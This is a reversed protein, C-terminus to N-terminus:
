LGIQYTQLNKKWFMKRCLGNRKDIADTVFSLNLLIKVLAGRGDTQGGVDLPRGDGPLPGEFGSSKDKSVLYRVKVNELPYRNWLQFWPVRVSLSLETCDVDEYKSTKSGSM